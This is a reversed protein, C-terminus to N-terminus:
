GPVSDVCTSVVHQSGYVTSGAVLSGSFALGTGTQSVDSITIITEGSDDTIV